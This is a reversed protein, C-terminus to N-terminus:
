QSAVTPSFPSVLLTLLHWLWNHLERTPAHHDLQDAKEDSLCSVLHWVFQRRVSCLGVADKPLLTAAREARRTRAVGDSCRVHVPNAPTNFVDSKDYTRSIESRSLSKGGSSSISSLRAVYPCDLANQVQLM